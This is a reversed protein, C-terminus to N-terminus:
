PQNRAAMENPDLDYEDESDLNETDSGIEENEVLVEGEPVTKDTAPTDPNVTEVPEETEFTPGSLFSCSLIIVVNWVATQFRLDYGRFGSKTVGSVPTRLGLCLPSTWLTM